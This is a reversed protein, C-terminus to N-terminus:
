KVVIEYEQITRAIPYEVATPTLNTQYGDGAYTKNGVNSGLITVKYTGPKSYKYKFTAKGSNNFVPIPIGVAFPLKGNEGFKIKAIYLNGKFGGMAGILIQIEEVPGYPKGANAKWSNILPMLDLTIESYDKSTTAMPYIWGDKWLMGNSLVGNIKIATLLMLSAASNDFKCTLVLKANNGIMNKPYISLTNNGPNITSNATVKLANNEISPPAPPTCTWAVFSPVATLGVFDKEFKTSNPDPLAYISDRLEQESLNKTIFFQSMNYEHGADGTYISLTTANHTINFVIEEGVKVATSSVSVDLVPMEPEKNCSIFLSLLVIIKTYQFIKKM